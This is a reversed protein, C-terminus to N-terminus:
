GQHTSDCQVKRLTARFARGWNRRRGNWGETGNASMAPGLREDMILMFAQDSAAQAEDAALEAVTRKRSKPAPYDERHLPDTLKEIIEQAEELSQAPELFLPAANATIIKSEFDMVEIGSISM